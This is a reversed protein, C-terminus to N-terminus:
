MPLVSSISQGCAAKSVLLSRAHLCLVSVISFKHLSTSIKAEIGSRDRPGKNSRRDLTEKALGCHKNWGAIAM